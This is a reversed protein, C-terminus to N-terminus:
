LGKRQRYEIPTCGTEAKFVTGFYSTDKFGCMFCIQKANYDTYILLHKAKAIRIRKLEDMVTIGCASKYYHCLAYKDMGAFESIDALTLPKSFEAELYRRIQTHAPLNESTIDSLWACLQSYGTFSREILTGGRSCVDSLEKVMTILSPTVRFVFSDSIKFYDLVGDTCIFTIWATSFTNGIKKYSHPIKRKCFFGEGEGLEYNKGSFSFTGKGKTVWLLHHFEYGNPRVTDSQTDYNGMTCLVFPLPCNDPDIYEKQIETFNKIM